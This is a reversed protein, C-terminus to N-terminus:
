DQEAHRTRISASRFSAHLSLFLPLFSPLFSPLFFRVLPRPQNNPPKGRATIQLHLAASASRPRPLNSNVAPSPSCSERPLFLPLFLTTPLKDAYLEIVAASNNDWLPRRETSNGDSRRSGYPRCPKTPYSDLLTALHRRERERKM